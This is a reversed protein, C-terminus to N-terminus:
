NSNFGKLIEKLLFQLDGMGEIEEQPNYRIAHTNGTQEIEILEDCGDVCVNCKNFELTLFKSYDFSDLIENWEASSIERSKNAVGENEGCPITRQYKIKESSVFIYEQGACWGCESGFKIVFDQDIIEEESCSFLFVLILSIFFVKKQM